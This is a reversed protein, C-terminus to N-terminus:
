TKKLHRIWKELEVSHFVLAAAGFCLLLEYFTLSSTNFIRQLLPIYVIALQLAVTGLVTFLLIRNRFLGHKYIFADSSRIAIVHALQCL